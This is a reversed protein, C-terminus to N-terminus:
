QARLLEVEFVLTANPPITPPKGAAGYALQPPIILKRKGGVKMTSLGEEWGRIVGGTGLRFTIPQGSDLSSEFKQGNEFTGTYHVTVTQGPKPTAGTGKVLDVYRLGSATKVEEGSSEGGSRSFFLYAGGIVLGAIIVAVVM